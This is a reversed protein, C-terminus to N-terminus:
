ATKKPSVFGYAHIIGHARRHNQTAREVAGPLLARAICADFDRDSMSDVKAGEAPTLPAPDINDKSRM